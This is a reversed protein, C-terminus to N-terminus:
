RTGLHFFPCLTWTCFHMSYPEPWSECTEVRSGRNHHVTFVLILWMLFCDTHKHTKLKKTKIKIIKIKNETKVYVESSYLIMLANERDFTTWQGHKPQKSKKKQVIHNRKKQKMKNQDRRMQCIHACFLFWEMRFLAFTFNRIKIKKKKQNPM